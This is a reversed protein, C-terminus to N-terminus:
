TIHMYSFTIVHMVHHTSGNCAVNGSIVVQNCGVNLIVHMIVYVEIQKSRQDDTTESGTRSHASGGIILGPVGCLSQAM